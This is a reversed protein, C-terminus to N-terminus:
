RRGAECGDLLKEGQNGRWTNATCAGAAFDALDYIGSGRAENDALLNRTGGVTLGGLGNSEAVNRHVVNAGGGVDIGVQNHSAENAEVLSRSGNVQIGVANSHANNLVVVTERAEPLLVIATGGQSVIGTLENAQLQNGRGSVRIGFGRVGLIRVHRVLNQDSGDILIGAGPGSTIQLRKLAHGGGGRLVVAQSCNNVQGDQVRVDRRETVDVGIGPSICLVQHGGLDVTVGDAEVTLPAQCDADLATDETVTGCPPPLQAHAAPALGVAPGILVATLMLWRLRSM